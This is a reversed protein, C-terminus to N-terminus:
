ISVLFDIEIQKSNAGLRCFKRHHVRCAEFTNMQIVKELFTTFLVYDWVCMSSQNFAHVTRDIVAYLVAQQSFQRSYERDIQLSVCLKEYNVFNVDCTQSEPM